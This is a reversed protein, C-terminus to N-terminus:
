DREPRLHMATIGCDFPRSEVLTMRHYAGDPFVPMGAGIATPNVFLHIEDALGEAILSRVLTGGGYAIIDGGADEKLARVASVLDSAVVANSWPSEDLTRSVVVKPTGTMKAISAADEGPPGSEWAPIFGEALRRGLLITDVPDTLAGVHASLDASWPGALWDMEGAPGAMFGDVTTQVQLKLTRM